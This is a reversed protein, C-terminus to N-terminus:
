TRVDFKGQTKAIVTFDEVLRDACRQMMGFM